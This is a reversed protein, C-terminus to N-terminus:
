DEKGKKEIWAFELVSKWTRSTGPWGFTSGTILFHYKQTLKELYDILEHAERLKPRKRFYKAPDNDFHAFWKDILYIISRIRKEIEKLDDNIVDVDLYGGSRLAFTRIIRQGDELSFKLQQHRKEIYSFSFAKPNDKIFRLLRPLSIADPKNRKSPDIIRRIGMLIRHIYNNSLWHTFPYERTLKSNSKVVEDLELYIDRALQLHWIANRLRIIRRKCKSRIARAQQHTM